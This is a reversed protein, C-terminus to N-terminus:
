GQPCVCPAVQAVGGPVGREAWPGGWGSSHGEKIELELFESSLSFPGEPVSDGANM